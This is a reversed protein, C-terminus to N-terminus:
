HFLTSSRHNVRAISATITSFGLRSVQYPKQERVITLTSKRKKEKQKQKEQKQINGM